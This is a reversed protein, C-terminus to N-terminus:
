TSNQTQNWFDTFNRSANQGASMTSNNLGNEQLDAKRITSNNEVSFFLSTLSIVLLVLIGIKVKM